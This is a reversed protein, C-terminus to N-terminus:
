AGEEPDVLRAAWDINPTTAQFEALTMKHYIANPDRMQIRSLQAQALKTELALVKQADAQADAQPVGALTYLTVLHRVYADRDGNERLMTFVRDADQPRAMKGVAMAAFFRVRSIDDRLHRVLVDHAPAFKADGLIKAAQSRIESDGDDLLKVIPELVLWRQLFGHPDTARPTAAAPTFVPAPEAAAVVPAGALAAAVLCWSFRLCISM